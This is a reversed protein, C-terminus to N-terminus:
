DDVLGSVLPRMRTSPPPRCILGSRIDTVAQISERMKHSIQQREPTLSRFIALSAPLEGARRTPSGAAATSIPSGSKSQAAAFPRASPQKRVFSSSSHLTCGMASPLTALSRCDKWLLRCVPSNPCGQKGFVRL